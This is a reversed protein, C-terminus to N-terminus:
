SDLSDHTRAADGMLFDHAFPASKFLYQARGYRGGRFL